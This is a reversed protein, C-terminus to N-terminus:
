SGGSADVADGLDLCLYWDTAKTSTSKISERHVTGIVLLQGINHVCQRRTNPPKNTQQLLPNGLRTSRNLLAFSINRLSHLAMQPRGALNTAPHLPVCSDLRRQRKTAPANVRALKPRASPHICGNRTHVLLAMAVVVSAVLWKTVLANSPCMVLESEVDELASEM